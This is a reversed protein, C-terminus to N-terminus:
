MVKQQLWPFIVTVDTTMITNGELHAYGHQLPCARFSSFPCLCTLGYKSLFRLAECSLVYNKRFRLNSIDSFIGFPFMEIESQFGPGQNALM